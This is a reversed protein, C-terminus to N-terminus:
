KQGKMLEKISFRLFYLERNGEYLVGIHDEGIRTLCSYGAGRRADYLTHWKEPWSMGEDDSVKLTMNFRGENTAPNSFLLLAGHESHELRILSAMCTPEVLATRDTPHRQWTEGLDTTVAVTRGSLGDVGERNRNDRCNIMISGDGLEVLQAETTDIKVGSGISWTLGKDKSYILTSSPKGNVPAENSGRFQAPFVLTGDKMSIGKGPGQLVFRWDPNKIQQTINVPNSWTLGDDDSHVLMLQGTEEPEMGPGSGNWSRDGHSWTAAVWIRGTQKDVLITPDGIGDYRWMPDNGMDMIVQMPEWHRGGDTSRSMGVDIDGPLDGGSRYRNDYVAILTGSRTTALGPIRYTHCEDQGAVRLAVGIRQAHFIDPNAAELKLGNAEVSILKANIFHDQNAEPKLEISIRFKNEGERLVLSGPLSIVEGIETVEGFLVQDRFVRIVAIDKLDTTGEMSLTVNHLSKPNLSGVTIVSFSSVPNDKKGLLVPNVVQNMTLHSVEMEIPKRISVDDILTGANAPATSIFKLSTAGTPVACEVSSLFSRGVRIEDDGQFINIWGEDGKAEVSFTYPPRVTWREAQFKLVTEGEVPENLTLTVTQNSGGNLHLSQKGRHAFRGSIEAHGTAATWVASGLQIKTFPSAEVDEFSTSYNISRFGLKSTSDATLLDSSVIVGIMLGGLMLRTLVTKSLSMLSDQYATLGIDLARGLVDGPILVLRSAASM